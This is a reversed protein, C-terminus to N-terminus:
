QKWLIKKTYGERNFSLVVNSGAQVEGNIMQTFHMCLNPVPYILYKVYHHREPVLEYYEGRFPGIKMNTLGEAKKQLGTVIYDLM